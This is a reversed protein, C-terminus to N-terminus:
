AVRRGGIAALRVRPAEENAAGARRLRRVSLELAPRGMLRAVMSLPQYLGLYRDPGGDHAVLPAFLVEMPLSAGDTQVEAHAVLPEPRLRVEELATQLRLRDLESWLALAGVGRLDRRHLDGVFGGALRFPYQGRGERGLVFVQPMLHRFDAPQVSARSPARGPTARATWYAIMQETNSHFM